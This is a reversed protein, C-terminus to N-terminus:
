LYREQSVNAEHSSWLQVLIESEHSLRIANDQAHFDTLEERLMFLCGWMLRGPDWRPQHNARSLNFFNIMYKTVLQLILLKNVGMELKVQVSIIFLSVWITNMLRHYYKLSWVVTHTRLRPM